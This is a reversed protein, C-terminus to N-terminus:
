QPPHHHERANCIAINNNIATWCVKHTLLCLSAPQLRLSWNVLSLLCWLKTLLFFIQWFQGDQSGRVYGHCCVVVEELYILLVTVNQWMVCEVREALQSMTKSMELKDPGIKRRSEGWYLGVKNRDVKTPVFTEPGASTHDLRIGPERKWRKCIKVPVMSRLSGSIDPLQCASRALKKKEGKNSSMEPCSWLGGSHLAASVASTFYLLHFSANLYAPFLLWM